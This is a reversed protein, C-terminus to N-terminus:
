KVHELRQDYALSYWNGFSNALISEEGFKYSIFKKQNEYTYIYKFKMWKKIEAESKCFRKERDCKEFIVM